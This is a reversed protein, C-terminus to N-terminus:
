ALLPPHMYEIEREGVNVPCVEPTLRIYDPWFQAFKVRITRADTPFNM